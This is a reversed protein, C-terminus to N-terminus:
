VSPKAGCYIASKCVHARATCTRVCMGFQCILLRLLKSCKRRCRTKKRCANKIQTFFFFIIIINVNIIIIILAITITATTIALVQRPSGIHLGPTSQDVSPRGGPLPHAWGPFAGQMCM